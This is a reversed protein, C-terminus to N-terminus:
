YIIRRQLQSEMIFPVHVSSDNKWTTVIDCVYVKQSVCRMIEKQKLNSAVHNERVRKELNVHNTRRSTNRNSKQHSNHSREKQKSTRRNTNDLGCWILVESVSVFAVINAVVSCVDDCYILLWGLLPITGYEMSVGALVWMQILAADMIVTNTWSWGLLNVM